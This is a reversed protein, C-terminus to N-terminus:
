IVPINSTRNTENRIQRHIDHHCRKCVTFGNGKEYKIHHFHLNKTSDCSVCHTGRNYRRDYARIKVKDPHRKKYLKAWKNFKDKHKYYYTRAALKSTERGKFTARWKRAWLKKGQKLKEKHKIRYQKMYTRQNEKTWVM